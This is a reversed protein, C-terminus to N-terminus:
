VRESKMFEDTFAEIKGTTIDLTTWLAHLVQRNQIWLMECYGGPPQGFRRNFTKHCMTDNDIIVLPVPHDYRLSDLIRLRHWFLLLAPMSWVALVVLIVNDLSDLEGATGKLVRATRVVEYKSAAERVLDDFSHGSM